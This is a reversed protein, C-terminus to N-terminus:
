PYPITNIGHNTTTNVGNNSCNVGNGGVSCLTGSVSSTTRITTLDEIKMPNLDPSSRGPGTM